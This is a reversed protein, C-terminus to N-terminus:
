FKCSGNFIPLGLWDLTIQYIHDFTSDKKYSNKGVQNKFFFKTGEICDTASMLLHRKLNLKQKVDVRIRACLHFDFFYFDM